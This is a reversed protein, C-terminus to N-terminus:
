AYVLRVPHSSSGPTRRRSSRVAGPYKASTTSARSLGSGFGPHDATAPNPSIHATPPPPRWWNPAWAGPATRTKRTSSAPPYSAPDDGARSTGAPTAPPRRPPRSSPPAGARLQPLLEATLAYPGVFNMALTAQDPTEWRSPHLGGVNNILLNLRPVTARVRDPLDQNGGVTSHDARLFMVSDPGSERRIAAAAQEGTGPECGTIIVRAGSRALAHATQRDIGGTSGTILVSQGILPQDAAATNM